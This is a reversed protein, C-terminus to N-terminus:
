DDFDLPKLFEEDLNLLEAELLQLVDDITLRDLDLLLEEVIDDM